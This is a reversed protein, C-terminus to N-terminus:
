VLYLIAIFTKGVQHKRMSFSIRPPVYGADTRRAFEGRELFTIQSGSVQLVFCVFFFGLRYNCKKQDHALCGYYMLMSM